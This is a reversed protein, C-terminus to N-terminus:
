LEFAWAGTHFAQIISKNEVLQCGQRNYGGINKLYVRPNGHPLRSLMVDEFDKWIWM